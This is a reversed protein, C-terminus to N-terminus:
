HREVELGPQYVQIGTCDGFGGRQRQQGQAPQRHDAAPPPLRVDVWLVFQGVRAVVHLWRDSTHRPQVVLILRYHRIGTAVERIALLLSISSFMGNAAERVRGRRFFKAM